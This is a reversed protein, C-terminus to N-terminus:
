KIKKPHRSIMFLPLFNQKPTAGGFAPRPPTADNANGLFKPLIFKLFTASKGNLSPERIKLVFHPLSKAREAYTTIHFSTTREVVFETVACGGSWWVTPYSLRGGSRSNREAMAEGGRMGNKNPPPKRKKIQYPLPPRPRTEGFSFSVSNKTSIRHVRNQWVIKQPNPNPLVSVLEKATIEARLFPDPSHIRTPRTKPPPSNAEWVM